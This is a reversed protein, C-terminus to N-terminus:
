GRQFVARWLATLFELFVMCVAVWWALFLIVVVFVYGLGRLLWM